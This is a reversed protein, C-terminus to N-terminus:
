CGWQSRRGGASKYKYHSGGGIGDRDMQEQQGWGLVKWRGTLRGHDPVGDKDGTRMPRDDRLSGM